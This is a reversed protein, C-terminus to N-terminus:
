QVTHVMLAIQQILSALNPSRSFECFTPLCRLFFLVFVVPIM